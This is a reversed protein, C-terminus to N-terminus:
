FQQLGNITEVSRYCLRYLVGMSSVFTFIVKLIGTFVVVNGIYADILAFSYRFLSLIGFDAMANVTEQDDVVLLNWEKGGNGPVKERQKVDGVEGVELDEVYINNGWVTREEKWKSRGGIGTSSSRLTGLDSGELLREVIHRVRKTIPHQEPLIKGDFSRLLQLYSEQALSAETSSSIDM